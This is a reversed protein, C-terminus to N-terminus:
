PETFYAFRPYTKFPDPESAFRDVETQPFRGYAVWGEKNDLVFDPHGASQITVRTFDGPDGYGEPLELRFHAKKGGQQWDFDFEEITKWQSPGGHSEPSAKTVPRAPQEGGSGSHAVPSQSAPAKGKSRCGPIMLAVLVVTALRKM